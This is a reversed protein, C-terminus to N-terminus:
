KVEVKRADQTALEILEDINYRLLLATRNSDKPLFIHDKKEQNGIEMVLKKMKGGKTQSKKFWAWCCLKGM